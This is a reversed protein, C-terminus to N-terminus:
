HLYRSLSEPYDQYKYDVGLQKLAALTSPIKGAVFDNKTVKIRGRVM